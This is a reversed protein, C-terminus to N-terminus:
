VDCMRMHAGDGSADFCAAFMRESDDSADVGNGTSPSLRREDSAFHRSSDTLEDFAREHAAMVPQILHRAETWKAEVLFIARLRRM